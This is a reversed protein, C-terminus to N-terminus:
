ACACTSNVGGIGDDDDSRFGLYGISLGLVVAVFVGGNFSMIELMLLYGLGSSLGFLLGDAIKRGSRKGVGSRNSLLPEEAAPNGGHRVIYRAHELYQYFVSALVCALLTLLYSPWSDTRWSSFLLTVQRSWYFTMHMM